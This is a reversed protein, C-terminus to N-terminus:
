YKKSQKEQKTNNEKEIGLFHFKSQLKVDSSDSEFKCEKLQSEVSYSGVQSAFSALHIGLTWHEKENRYRTVSQSVM